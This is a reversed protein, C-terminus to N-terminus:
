VKLKTATVNFDVLHAPLLINRTVNEALVFMAM